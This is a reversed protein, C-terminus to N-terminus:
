FDAAHLEALAAGAETFRARSYISRTGRSLMSRMQGPHRRRSDKSCRVARKPGLDVVKRAAASGDAIPPIASVAPYPELRDDLGPNRLRKAMEGNILERGLDALTRSLPGPQGDRRGRPDVLHDHM